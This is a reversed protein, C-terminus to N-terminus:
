PGNCKEQVKVCEFIIEWRQEKESFCKTKLTISFSWADDYNAISLTRSSDTRSCTAEGQCAFAFNFWPLTTDGGTGLWQKQRTNTNIINKLTVMLAEFKNLYDSPTEPKHVISIRTYKEAETDIAASFITWQDTIQLILDLLVIPRPYPVSQDMFIANSGTCSINNLGIEITETTGKTYTLKFSSKDKKEKHIKLLILSLPLIFVATPKFKYPDYLISKLRDVVDTWHDYNADDESNESAGVIAGNRLDNWLRKRENENENNKGAFLLIGCIDCLDKLAPDYKDTDLNKFFVTNLANWLGEANLNEIRKSGLGFIEFVVGLVTLRIAKAAEAAKAAKVKAEKAAEAAEDAKVEAEKAAKVLESPRMNDWRHQVTWKVGALEVSNNDKFYHSVRSAAAFISRSPDYLIARLRQSSASTRELASTLESLPAKLLGLMQSQKELAKQRERLIECVSEVSLHQLLANMAHRYAPPLHLDKGDKELEAIIYMHAITSINEKDDMFNTESGQSLHFERLKHNDINIPKEEQDTDGNKKNLLTKYTPLIVENLYDSETSSGADPRSIKMSRRKVKGIHVAKPIFPNCSGQSAQTGQSSDNAGMKLHSSEMASSGGKLYDEMKKNYMGSVAELDEKSWNNSSSKKEPCQFAFCDYYQKHNKENKEYHEPLIVAIAVFYVKEWWHLAEATAVQIKRIFNTQGSEELSYKPASQYYGYTKDFGLNAICNTGYAPGLSCRINHLVDNPAGNRKLSDGLKTLIKKFFTDIGKNLGEIHKDINKGDCERNGDIIKTVLEDHNVEGGEQM